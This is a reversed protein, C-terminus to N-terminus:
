QEGRKGRRNGGDGLGVDRGARFEREEDVRFFAHVRGREFRKEGFVAGVEGGFEVVDGEDHVVEVTVDGEEQGLDVGSVELFRQHVDHQVRGATAARSSMLVSALVNEPM